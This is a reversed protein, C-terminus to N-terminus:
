YHFIDALVAHPDQLRDSAPSDYTILISPQGTMPTLITLGEARDAKLQNPVTFLAEPNLFSNEPTDLTNVWRFLKVPGDVDLTPGALIL